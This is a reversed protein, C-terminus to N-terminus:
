AGAVQLDAVIDELEWVLGNTYFVLKDIADAAQTPTYAVGGEYFIKQGTPSVITLSHGGIGDNNIRIRYRKCINVVPLSLISDDDLQFYANPATLDFTTTGGTMTADSPTIGASTTTTAYNTTSGTLISTLTITVDDITASVLISDDNIAEYLNYLSVADTGGVTVEFPNSAAAVFTYTEIGIVVEDALGIVGTLVFDGTSATKVSDIEVEDSLMNESRLADVFDALAQPTTVNFDLNRNFFTTSIVGATTLALVWNEDNLGNDAIAVWNHAPDAPPFYRDGKNGLTASLGGVLTTTPDGGSNQWEANAIDTSVDFFNGAIGGVKAEVTMGNAGSYEKFKCTPHVTCWHVLGYSIGIDDIAFYLNAMASTDDAGILVEGETPAVSLAAVYTYVKDDITVIKGAVVSTGSGDFELTAEAHTANLPVGVFARSAETGDTLDNIVHPVIGTTDTFDSLDTPVDEIEAYDYKIRINSVVWAKFAEYPAVAPVTVGKYFIEYRGDTQEDKTKIILLQQTDNWVMERIQEINITKIVGNNNCTLVNKAISLIMKNDKLLENYFYAYYSIIAKFTIFM